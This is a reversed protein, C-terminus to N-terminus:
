TFVVTMASLNVRGGAPDPVHNTSSTGLVLYSGEGRHRDVGKDVVENFEVLANRYGLNEVDQLSLRM